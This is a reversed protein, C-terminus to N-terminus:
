SVIRQERDGDGDEGFAPVVPRAHLVQGARGPQRLRREVVVDVALLLQQPERELPGDFGQEGHGELGWCTPLGISRSSCTTRRSTSTSASRSGYTVNSSLTCPLVPASRQASSRRRSNSRKTAPRTALGGPVAVDAGVEVGPHDVRSSNPM